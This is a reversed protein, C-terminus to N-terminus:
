AYKEGDIGEGDVMCKFDIRQKPQANNVIRHERSPGDRCNVYTQSNISCTKAVGLSTDHTNPASPLPNASTLLPLAFLALGNTLKM